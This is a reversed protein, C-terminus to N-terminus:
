DEASANFVIDDNVTTALLVYEILPWLVPKQVFSEFAMVHQNDSKQIGFISEQSLEGIM